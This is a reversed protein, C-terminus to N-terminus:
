IGLSHLESPTKSAFVSDMVRIAGAEFIAVQVQTFADRTM